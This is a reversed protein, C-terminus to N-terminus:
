DSPARDEALWRLVPGLDRQTVKINKFARRCDALASEVAASQWSRNIQSVWRGLQDAENHQTRVMRPCWRLLSVARQQTDVDSELLTSLQLLELGVVADQPSLRNADALLHLALQQEREDVQQEARLYRAYALFGQPNWPDTQLAREYRQRVRPQAGGQHADIQALALQPVGREDNLRMALTAWDSQGNVRERFYEAGPMGRQQSLVAYTMSDVALYFVMVCAVGIGSMWSLRAAQPVSLGAQTPNLRPALCALVLALVMTLPLIYFTFNVNAHLFFAGAALLYGTRHEAIRWHILQRVSQTIWWAMLTLLPILLFLGGELLFQVYDNHVYLGMTSQEQVTRVGPYLLSFTYLGTGTLYGHEDMLALASDILLWRHSVLEASGQNLVAQDPADPMPVAGLGFYLGVSLLIAVSVGLSAQLHIRGSGTLRALWVYILVGFIILLAFRSATALMAYCFVFSVLCYFVSDRLSKNHDITLGAIVWPLWVLYLLTVLNNPDAFPLYARSGHLLGAAVAYLAFLGVVFLVWRFIREPESAMFVLVGMPLLALAISSAFSTDVSISFLMHQFGILVTSGVCAWVWGPAARYISVWGHAGVLVAAVAWCLSSYLLFSLNVGPGYYFLAFLLGLLLLAQRIRLTFQASLM